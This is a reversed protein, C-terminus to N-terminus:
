CCWKILSFWMENQQLRTVTCLCLIEVWYVSPVFSITYKWRKENCSQRNKKKKDREYEQLIHTKTHLYFFFLQFFVCTSRCLLAFALRSLFLPYFGRPATTFTSFICVNIVNQPNNRIHQAIPKYSLLSDISADILFLSFISCILCLISLFFLLLFFFFFLMWHYVFHSESNM